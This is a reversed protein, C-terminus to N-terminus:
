FRHTYYAATGPVQVFELTGNVIRRIRSDPRERFVTDDLVRSLNLSIGLYLRRSRAEPFAPDEFGRANYGIALELYRWPKRNRLRAIGSGKIALVWTQGGYDALPDWASRTSGTTSPRYQLRFDVLDDFDPHKDSLYAIGAGALNMLADEKSFAWGKAFGDIVEVATFTGLTTYFALRRAREPDHGIGEFTWTLLRTGLYNSYAHGLKDAGGYRTDRGFWGEYQTRFDGSVGDGWWKNGGYALVAIGAGAIVTNTLLRRRRDLRADARPASAADAGTAGAAAALPGFPVGNEGPAGHAGSALSRDPALDPGPGVSACGTAALGLALACLTAALPRSVGPAPAPRRERAAGRSGARL